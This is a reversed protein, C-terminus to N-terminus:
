SQGRCELAQNIMGNACPRGLGDFEVLAKEVAVDGGRDPQDGEILDGVLVDLVAKVLHFQCDGFERGVGDVGDAGVESGFEAFESALSDDLGVWDGVGFWDGDRWFLDDVPRALLDGGDDFGGGM